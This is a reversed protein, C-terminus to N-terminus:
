ALLERCIRGYVKGANAWSDRAAIRVIGHDVGGSPLRELAEAVGQPSGNDIWHIAAEEALDRTQRSRLAILPRRAALCQRVGGSTGNNNTVLLQATASCGSLYSVVQEKPVFQRVVAVAPNLSTWRAVEEDTARSALVLVGWGALAAAECLLDINRYGLSLGVTGVVPQERWWLGAHVQQGRLLDFYIPDEWAPIGQRLYTGNSPLDDYPEHLIFHDSAECISQCQDSNPVGSDHYVSLVKGGRAQVARIHEPHWQSLLAAQYNLATVRPVKQRDLIARPHLDTVVEIKFGEPELAEKLYEAYQAIGCAGGFTSVLTIETPKM